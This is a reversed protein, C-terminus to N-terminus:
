KNNLKKILDWDIQEFIEETFKKIDENGTADIYDDVDEFYGEENDIYWDEYDAIDPNYIQLGGTNCYDPKIRHQLQFADYCALMDMVKKGEEVSGVPIYFIANTGIQPIWWVRMKNTMETKGKKNRMKKMLIMM